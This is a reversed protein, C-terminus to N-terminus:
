PLTVLGCLQDNKIRATNSAITAQSALPGHSALAWMSAHLRVIALVTSM